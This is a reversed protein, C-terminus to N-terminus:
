NFPIDADYVAPVQQAVQPIAQQAPAQQSYAQPAPQPAAYGATPQAAYGPAPQPAYGQPAPQPAAGQQRSMFELENVLVSVKSRGKGTEKDTWREQELEGSVTVKTGKVLYQQLKTARDGLVKFDFFSAVEDYGGSANKRRKNVAVTGSGIPYGSPTARVQFDSALNGSLTVNNIAM